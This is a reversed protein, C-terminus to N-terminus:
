FNFSTSDELTCVNQPGHRMQRPFVFRGTVPLENDPMVNWTCAKAWFIFLTPTQSSCTSLLFFLLIFPLCKTDSILFKHITIDVRPRRKGPRHHWLCRPRSKGPRHHRLCSQSDGRGYRTAKKRTEIKHIENKGFVEIFDM